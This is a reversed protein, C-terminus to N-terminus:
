NKRKDQKLYMRYIPISIVYAILGTVYKMIASQLYFVSLLYSLIFVSCLIYISANLQTRNEDFRSLLSPTSEILAMIFIFLLIGGKVYDGIIISSVAVVLLILEVLISIVTLLMMNFGFVFLAVILIIHYVYLILWQWNM